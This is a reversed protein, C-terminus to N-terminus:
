EIAWRTQAADKLATTRGFGLHSLNKKPQGLWNVHYGRADRAFQAENEM